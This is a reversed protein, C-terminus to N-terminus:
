LCCPADYYLPGKKYQQIKTNFAVLLTMLCLDKKTSNYKQILPLLSRWLVFTRKQVTTNKYQLCCPTDYYLPGKKYQQIKTNFAVLLTMICLDKKTSNYKQILPLLSRWLVFTRKQVTTNKYQLCCPADYYLPGKKYQQIKINFAVLLTMICLDKKTSNYKQILPGSECSLLAIISRAMSENNRRFSFYICLCKLM